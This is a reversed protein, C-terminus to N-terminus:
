VPELAKIGYDGFVIRNAFSIGNLRGRHQKKFKTKKPNLM